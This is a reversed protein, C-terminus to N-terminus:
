REQEPEEDLFTKKVKDRIGQRVKYSSESISKDRLKITIEDMTLGKLKLEIFYKEKNSLEQMDLWLTAEMEEVADTSSVLAKLITSPTKGDGYGVDLSRSIPRRQAKSILTRIANVLSTHLYTHFLVGKDENFKRAAKILSIRLEQAVDENDMGAIFTNSVMKQIKPEWQLVLNDNIDM